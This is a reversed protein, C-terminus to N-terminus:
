PAVPHHTVMGFLAYVVYIAAVVIVLVKVIQKVTADLAPFAQVGWLIIGAVVVVLIIQLLDHPM